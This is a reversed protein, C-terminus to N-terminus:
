LQDYHPAVRRPRHRGVDLTKKKGKQLVFHILSKCRGAQMGGGGGNGGIIEASAFTYFFILAPFVFCFLGTLSLRKYTQHEPILRTTQLTESFVEGGARLFFLPVTPSNLSLCLQSAAWREGAEWPVSSGPASFTSPYFFFSWFSSFSDWESAPQSSPRSEQPRKSYVFFELSSAPLINGQIDWLTPQRKCDLDCSLKSLRPVVHPNWKLISIIRIISICDSKFGQLIQENSYIIVCLLHDNFSFCLHKICTISKYFIYSM